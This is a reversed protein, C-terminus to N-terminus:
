AGLFEMISEQKQAGLLHRIKDGTENVLILAPVSRIGYAKALTTNQDVNYSEMTKVLPHNVGELIKALEKCPACTTM